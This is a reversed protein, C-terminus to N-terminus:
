KVGVKVERLRLKSWLAEAAVSFIVLAQLILSLDRTVRDTEL